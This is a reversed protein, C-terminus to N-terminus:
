RSPIAEYEKLCETAMAEDQFQLEVSYSDFGFPSYAYWYKVHSSYKDLLAMVKPTQRNSLVDTIHVQPNWESQPVCDATQGALASVLQQLTIKNTAKM